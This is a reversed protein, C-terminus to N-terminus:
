ASKGDASKKVYFEIVDIIRYLLVCFWGLVASWNHEFASMIVIAFTLLMWFWVGSENGKGM